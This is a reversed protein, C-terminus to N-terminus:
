NLKVRYKFFRDVESLSGDKTRRLFWRWLSKTEIDNLLCFDVWSSIGDPRKIEGNELVFEGAFLLKSQGVAKAFDEKKVLAKPNMLDERDFCVGHDELFSVCEKVSAKSSVNRKFCDKALLVSLDAFTPQASVLFPHLCLLLISRKFIKMKISGSTVM